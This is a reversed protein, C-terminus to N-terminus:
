QKSGIRPSDEFGTAVVKDMRCVPVQAPPPVTRGAIQKMLWQRRRDKEVFDYRGAAILWKNEEREKDLQKLEEEYSLVPRSPLIRENLEEGATIKRPHLVERARLKTEETMEEITRPKGTRNTLM